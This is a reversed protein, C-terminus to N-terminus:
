RLAKNDSENKIHIDMQNYPIEVGNRDFVEKYRELLNFRTDWFDETKVWARTELTVCNSALDKVFVKIEREQMVCPESELVDRLLSKAKKVDAQYGIGVQIDLRRDDEAAVNTINSNSLNGNPLLITKNDITHLKTYLLDVAVVTGECNGSVIYDGIVFPKFIMLLIGGAFNSLSGQLSMGIALAASGFVTILSTTQFGLIQVIAMILVAYLVVRVISSIFRIVGDDLNGHSLAKSNLKVLWKIVRKGIKWVIFALIIQGLVGLGWDCFAFFLRKLNDMSFYSEIDSSTFKAAELLFMDFM